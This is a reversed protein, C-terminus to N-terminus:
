YAVRVAFTGNSRGSAITSRYWFHCLCSCNQRHKAQHIWEGLEKEDLSAALRKPYVGGHNRLWQNLAEFSQMWTRRRTASRVQSAAAPRKKTPPTAASRVLEPPSTSATRVVAASSLAARTKKKPPLASSSSATPDTGTDGEAAGGARGRKPMDGRLPTPLDLCCCNSGFHCRVHLHKAYISAAESDPGFLAM